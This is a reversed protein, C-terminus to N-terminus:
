TNNVNKSYLENIIQLRSKLNLPILTVKSENTFRTKLMGTNITLLDAFSVGVFGGIFNPAEKKPYHQFSKGL